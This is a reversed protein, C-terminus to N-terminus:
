PTQGECTNLWELTLLSQLRVSIVPIGRLLYTNSVFTHFLVHTQIHQKFMCNYPQKWVISHIKWVRAVIENKTAPDIVDKSM